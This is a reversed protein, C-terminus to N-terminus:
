LAALRFWTAGTESMRRPDTWSADIGFDWSDGMVCHPVVRIDTEPHMMCTARAFIQDTNPLVSDEWGEAYPQGSPHITATVCLDDQSTLEHRDALAEFAGTVIPGYSGMYPM